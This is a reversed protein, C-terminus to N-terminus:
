KKYYDKYWEAFKAVGEEISTKPQYKFDNKLSTVDAYTDEVDGPQIPVFERIAEIGLEKELIDLYKNVEEM